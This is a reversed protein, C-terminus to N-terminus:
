FAVRLSTRVGNGVDRPVPRGLTTREYALGLAVHPALTWRVGAATSDAVPGRSREKAVAVAGPPPAPPAPLAAPPYPPPLVVPVPARAVVHPGDLMEVALATAACPATRRDTLWALDDRVDLAARRRRADLALRVGLAPSTGDDGACVPALRLRPARVGAWRVEIRLWGDPLPSVRAVGLAPREVAHGAAAMLAVLVVGAM